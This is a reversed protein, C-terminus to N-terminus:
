YWWWKGWVGAECLHADGEDLSVSGQIFPFGFELSREAWSEPADWDRLEAQQMSEMEVEQVRGGGGEGEVGAQEVGEWQDLMEGAGSGQAVNARHNEAFEVIADDGRLFAPVRVHAGHGM